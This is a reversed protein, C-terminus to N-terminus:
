KTAVTKSGLMKDGNAIMVHGNTPEIDKILNTDSIMHHSAGYDVILPKSINSANHCLIIPSRFANFKHNMKANRAFTYETRANENSRTTDIRAIDAVCPSIEITKAVMSAGFSYGHINGNDKLMKILADMESRRIFDHDNGRPNPAGSYTVLAKGDGERGDGEAGRNSPGVGSTGESAHARAEREKM